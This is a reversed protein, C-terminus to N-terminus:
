ARTSFADWNQKLWDLQIDTDPIKVGRQSSVLSVANEDAYGANALVAACLMGTRGIGARCHIVTSIGSELDDYVRQSLASFSVLSAPLQMDEIAYNVFSMGSSVTFQAEDQLGLSAAEAPELLSVIQQGGQVAISNMTARLADTGGEPKPMAALFSKGLTYIKFFQM